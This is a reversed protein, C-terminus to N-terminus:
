VQGSERRDLSRLLGNFDGSETATSTVFSQSIGFDSNRMGLKFHAEERRSSSRLRANM